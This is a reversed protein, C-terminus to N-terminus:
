MDLMKKIKKMWWFIGPPPFRRALAALLPM